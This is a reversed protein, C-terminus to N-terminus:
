IGSLTLNCRRVRDNITALTTQDLVVFRRRISGAPLM